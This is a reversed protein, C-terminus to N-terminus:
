ASTKPNINDLIRKQLNIGSFEAIEEKSFKCSNYSIFKFPHKDKLEDPDVKLNGQQEENYNYRYGDALMVGSFALHNTDALVQLKNIDSIAYTTDRPLDSIAEKFSGTRIEFSIEPFLVKLDHRIFKNGYENYVYCKMKFHQSAIYRICSVFELERGNTTYLMTSNLYKSMLENLFEDDIDDGHPLDLFPNRNKRQRYWELVGEDYLYEIENLNLIEWLNKSKRIAKIVELMPARIVDDYEVMLATTGSWPNTEVM